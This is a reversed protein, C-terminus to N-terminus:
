LYFLINFGRYGEPNFINLRYWYSRSSFSSTLLCVLVAPYGLFSAFYRLLYSSLKFVTHKPNYLISILQSVSVLLPYHLEHLICSLLWLLIHQWIFELTSDLCLVLLHHHEPSLPELVGRVGFIDLPDHYTSPLHFIHCNVFISFLIFM